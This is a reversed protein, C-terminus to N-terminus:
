TAIFESVSFLNRSKAVTHSKIVVQPNAPCNVLFQKRVLGVNM